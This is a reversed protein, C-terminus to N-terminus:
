KFLEAITNFITKRHVLGRHRGIAGDLNGYDSRHGGGAAPLCSEEVLCSMLLGLPVILLLIFFPSMTLMSTSSFGVLLFWWAICEVAVSFLTVLFIIVNESPGPPFRRVFNWYLANALLSILSRWWSLQDIAMILLHILCVAVILRRLIIKSYSSYEEFFDSVYFLLLMVGIFLVIFFVVAMLITVIRFPGYDYFPDRKEVYKYYDRYRRYHRTESDDFSM